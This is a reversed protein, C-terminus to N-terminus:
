LKFGLRVGYTVPRGPQAIEANPLFYNRVLDYHQNFLNRGYVGIYWNGEKPKFTLTANALWYGKVDFVPGLFSPQADRYSYDAQAEIAYDGLPVTYDASGQYSWHTFPLRKGAFNVGTGVYVGSADKHVSTSDIDTYRVYQGGKYGLSQAFRLGEVPTYALELEGGYIRSRPANTIRGIAGNQPDVVVGLVQQNHYDYYFGAGNLTLRRALETKFGAEYAYLTEPKFADIQDAQPSNYTTFGGSKVGKSASVYLLTTPTVHYEVEVKGTAKNTSQNRDGDTFTPTGGIATYFDRLTRREHEFRIGGIVTWKDTLKYEAQGFGSISQARQTYSTDTIFGLSQSFDTRFLEQLKQWSYYAGAVWTLRDAHVPALRLEQSFVQVRSHWFTDSEHSASSDWDNLERRILKDYATISTLRVADGLDIGANLSAGHSNNHRQPKANPGFGAATSFAPDFGWGTARHDTDAPIVLPSPTAGYGQTPFDNFLYLGTNESKDRGGHVNLTVDVGPSPTWELIGRGFLRDAKGLSQGTVRNYQFAGGQETVGSLRIKLTDTLPGSVYGEIRATGFRGYEADIGATTTATPKNTVFNIAGGTTNRGYLTGQPGRLVEVRAVDFLVGQTMIPVPYAVDDVYIGVTPTNNSAYDEFGVGRLRFQPQGGGFAPTVELSPTQYELQNVNGVGRKALEAGDIVSIAIGVDQVSQQRHQATVIIEGPQAATTDTADTTAAQAAGALLMAATVLPLSAIHFKM